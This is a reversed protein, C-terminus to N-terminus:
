YQAYIFGANMNVKSINIFLGISLLALICFLILLIHRVM